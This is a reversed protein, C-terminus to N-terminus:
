PTPELQWTGERNGVQLYTGGKDNVFFLFWTDGSKEVWEMEFTGEVEESRAHAYEPFNKQMESEWDDAQFVVSANQRVREVLLNLKQTEQSTM